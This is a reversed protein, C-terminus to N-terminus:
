AFGTTRVGNQRGWPGLAARLERSMGAPLGFKKGNARILRWFITQKIEQINSPEMVESGAMQHAYQAVTPEDYAPANGVGPQAMGALAGGVAGGLAQGAVALWAGGQKVCIFYLRNPAVFLHGHMRNMGHQMSLPYGRLMANSTVYQPVPQQAYIADIAKHNAPSVYLKVVILSAAISVFALYAGWGVSLGSHNEVFIRLLLCMGVAGAAWLAGNVNGLKVDRPRDQLTMAATHVLLGVAAGGTVIGLICIWTLGRPAQPIDFWFRSECHGEYCEKMGTFGLGGGPTTFWAKTFTAVLILGALAFLTIAVHKSKM